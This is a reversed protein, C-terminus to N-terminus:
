LPVTLWGTKTSNRGRFKHVPRLLAWAPVREATDLLQNFRILERIAVFTMERLHGNGDIIDRVASGAQAFDPKNTVMYWAWFVKVDFPADTTLGQLMVCADFLLLQTLESLPDIYLRGSPDADAHKLFNEAHNIRKDYGPPKIM